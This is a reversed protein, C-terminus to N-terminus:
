LTTHQEGSMTAYLATAIANRLAGLPRTGNVRDNGENEGEAELCAQLQWVISPEHDAM